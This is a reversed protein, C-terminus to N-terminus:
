THVTICDSIDSANTTITYDFDLGDCDTVHPGTYDFVANEPDTIDLYELTPDDTSSWTIAPSAFNIDSSGSGCLPIQTGNVVFVDPCGEVIDEVELALSPVGLVNVEIPNDANGPKCILVKMMTAGDPICIEEKCLDIGTGLACASGDGTMSSSPLIYGEISCPPDVCFGLGDFGTVDINLVLCSNSGQQGSCCEDGLPYSGFITPNGPTLNIAYEPVNQSADCQAKIGNLPFVALIIFVSLLKYTAPLLSAIRLTEGLIPLLPPQVKALIPQHYDNNM